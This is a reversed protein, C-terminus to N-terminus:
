GLLEKRNEFAVMLEDIFCAFTKQARYFYEVNLRYYIEAGSKKVKIIAVEHLLDDICHGISSRAIHLIRSLQSITRDQSSLEKLIELKLENGFTKITSEITM